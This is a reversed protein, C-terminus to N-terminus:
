DHILGQIPLLSSMHLLDATKTYKTRASIIHFIKQGQLNRLLSIANDNDACLFLLDFTSSLAHMNKIFDKQGLLEISALDNNPGLISLNGLSETVVFPGVSLREEDIDLTKGKSSFNIVAIKISELQVYSAIARAVDNGSLKARSSTVVVQTTNSKHMEVAIDRLARIPKKVLMKNVEKLSKNRLPLIEKISATIRAQAGVKLSAKSYYVGRCFAFFLSLASGFLLGLIASTLLIRIRKPKSPSISASAYEYVETKEPRYGAATSQVKVQEVLVTYTAESIKAERKLKGYTELVLGSREADKKSLNVQSQLRNKRESLTDFITDVSNLEPWSWSSIIENQGLIRRFEVQDVIPFKQRLLLYNKHDTTKNQLIVSLAAVAEHLESTRSLQERLADLEFSEAAFNELPLASNRLSFEKLNSQSVELDSLAKALTNSMYSLMKDQASNNKDKQSLIIKDMIVNAIEAARQPKAHTVKIIISGERTEDLEISKSYKTVIGQWMAEQDNTHSKKWGIARKILSKWIPEIMNPNYTNFYPDTQFNLKEDLNEIFIRGMVQDKPLVQNRGAGGIGAFKALAGIDGSLSLNNSNGEDLKFIARSTFEKDANLAYYGGFMVSLICISIIFLKYAWLKSFIDKLDIEDNYSSNIFDKM